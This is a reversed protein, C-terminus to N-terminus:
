LEISIHQDVAHGHSGSNTLKNTRNFIDPSLQGGGHRNCTRCVINALKALLGTTRDSHRYAILQFGSLTIIQVDAFAIAVTVGLCRDSRRNSYSQDKVCAIGVLGARDSSACFWRWPPLLFVEAARM